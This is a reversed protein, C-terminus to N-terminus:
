KVNDALKALQVEKRQRHSCFTCRYHKTLQGAESETPKVTVEEHHIKMTVYGCEPCEISHQYSYYKEVKKFGTKEDLWVDYDVSHIESGEQAIQDAELHADEESESLKRMLNGDPSTRPKNRLRDLKGEMYRVYYIKILSHFLYYTVIALCITIFLRGYFWKWGKRMIWETMFSNSAFTAAIIATIVTYWFFKIEYLTVYDYRAKFDSISLVRFEHYVFILITAVIFVATGTFMYSDWVVASQAADEM